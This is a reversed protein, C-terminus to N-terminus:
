LAIAIFLITTASFCVHLCISQFLLGLHLYVSSCAESIRFLHVTSFPLVMVLQHLSFWIVVLVSTFNSQETNGQVFFIIGLLNVSIQFGLVSILFYLCYGLSIPTPFHKRLLM